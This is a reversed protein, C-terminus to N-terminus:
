GHGGETHRDDVWSGTTAEHVCGRPATHPGPNLCPGPGTTSPCTTSPTLTTTM